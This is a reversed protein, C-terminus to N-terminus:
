NRELQSDGGLLDCEREFVAANTPMKDRPICLEKPEAALQCAQLPPLKVIKEGVRQYAHVAPLLTPVGDVRKTMSSKSFWHVMCVIVGNEQKFYIIRDQMSHRFVSWGNAAEEDFMDEIEQQLKEIAEYKDQLLQKKSKM